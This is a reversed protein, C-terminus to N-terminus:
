SQRRTMAAVERVCGLTGNEAVNPESGGINNGKYGNM